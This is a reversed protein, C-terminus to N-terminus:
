ASGTADDASQPVPAAAHAVTAGDVITETVVVRRPARAPRVKRLPQACLECARAPVNRRPDSYFRRSGCPTCEYLVNRDM